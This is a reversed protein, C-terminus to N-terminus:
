GAATVWWGPTTPHALAIKLTDDKLITHYNFTALGPPCVMEDLKSLGASPAPM